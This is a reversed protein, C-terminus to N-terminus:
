TGTQGEFPTIPPSLAPYNAAMFRALEARSGIGLRVYIRKLHTTATHPSIVLRQAIESGTLGDAALTAVELERPSLRGVTPRRVPAPRLGAARLARRARDRLPRAGLREFETLSLELAVGDPPDTLPGLDLRTRAADFAAGREALGEAASSLCTVAAEQQGLKLLALGEVRLGLCRVYGLNAGPAAQMRRASALADVADGALVRAEALLCSLFVGVPGAIQAAPLRAIREPEDWALAMNVGALVMVARVHEDALFPEAAQLVAAFRAEALDREGRWALVMSAVALFGALRRQDQRRGLFVGRDTTQMAADWEGLSFQNFALSWLPRLELSPSGLRRVLELAQLTYNAATRPESFVAVRALAQCARLALVPEGAEQAATLAQLGDEWAQAHDSTAVDAGALFAEARAKPSGLATALEFLRGRCKLMGSEDGARSLVTAKALLLATHETSPPLGEVSKLGLELLGLAKEPQGRDSSLVAMQRAVRAVSKPEPARRFAALAESWVGLAAGSEGIQEWAEGLRELLPPVLEPRDQRALELASQFNRVAEEYGFQDRAREGAAMMVELARRRDALEGSLRYHRALRLLDVPQSAELSRALALHAMRRAIESMEAYAVEQILPHSLRYAVSGEALGEVLLGTARLQGLVAELGEPSIGIATVLVRHPVADAAVAMLDAVRRGISPLEELRQLMLERLLPPLMHDSTSALMWGSATKVAHGVEVMAQLITRAFLPTGASRAVVLEVLAQEPEGGLLDRALAATEAPQLRGLRVEDIRLARRLLQLFPRVQHPHISDSRYTIILLFRSSALSRVAHGLMELSATDAWHADDLLLAVPSKATLRELLRTVAEFLRAKELAPDGLPEPPPLKLGAFLRGLDSLGMTLATLAERSVQRLHVGVAELIPAYSIGGELPSCSGCLALFGRSRALAVAEEALRTKGIGVEGSVLFAVGAGLSSQDLARSLRTM